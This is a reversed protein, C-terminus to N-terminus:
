GKKLWLELAQAVAEKISIGKTAAEAKVRNRLEPQVRLFTDKTM